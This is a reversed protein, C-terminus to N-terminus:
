TFLRLLPTVAYGDQDIPGEFGANRLAYFRRDRDNPERGLVRRVFDEDRPTM